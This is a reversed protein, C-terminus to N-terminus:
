SFSPCAHKMEFVEVAIAPVTECAAEEHLFKDAVHKPFTKVIESVSGEKEFLHLNARFQRLWSEVTTAKEGLVRAIESCFNQGRGQHVNELCRCHSLGNDAHRHDLNFTCMASGALLSFFAHSAPAGM